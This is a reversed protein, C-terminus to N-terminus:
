SRLQSVARHLFDELGFLPIVQNSSEPASGVAAVVDWYPHYGTRGALTQWRALFRDAAEPGALGFLNLRCHGVDAEPLGRSAVAWDVVGTVADGTWLVNGPHYDRHILGTPGQPAPGRHVVIARDWLAPRTTWPPPRLDDDLYYPRYPRVGLREPVTVAHIDLLPAALRELWSDLGRASRAEGATVPRGPLWTMLVAPVDCAGADPDVAVLDPAAVPTAALLDLVEAEREALDPERALWDERVYRRLM